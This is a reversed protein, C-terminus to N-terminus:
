SVAPELLTLTQAETDLRAMVGTPITFQHPIHGFSYGYVSPVPLTALHSDVVEALTLSPENDPPLAKQFVGLMVGACQAFGHRKPAEALAPLSQQLQTLMRDIRYPAEGIEELFLLHQRLPAAYPTGIMATLVALNGGVLRGQAVGPRITRTTFQPESAAKERNEAAMEIVYRPRPNTVVELLHNASYDSFTSGAVPGHFGVLGARRYVAVHLATIDSYGIVIKPHRRILGYDLGPLLATCGSGGRAAWVAKVENDRFMAHLDDLREQVTGAYGGRAARIHTGLKVSFGLSEINRVRREISADDVVGSPAVLGVLDGRSLRPPKLLRRTLPPTTAQAFTSSALWTAALIRSFTRRDM